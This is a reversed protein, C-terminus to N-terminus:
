QTTKLQFIGGNNECDNRAQAQQEIQYYWTIIQAGEPITPPDQGPDRSASRENSLSEATLTATCSARADAPCHAVRQKTSPSVGQDERSCSWNISGEPMHAYEYCIHTQVVPVQESAQETRVDCAEGWALSYGLSAILAIVGKM